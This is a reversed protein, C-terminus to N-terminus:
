RATFSYLRGQQRVVFRIRVMGDPMLKRLSRGGFLVKHRLSDGTILTTAITQNNVDLIAVSVPGIANLYLNQGQHLLPRTTITGADVSIFGDIRLRARFIGGGTIRTGRPHNKGYSSCGYYYILEDGIRLPGQSFESMYGGDNKGSNGGESGNPIFVEPIGADNVYPVKKWHLGDRSVVLKLFACGAASYPYDGDRHWVLLGGLWLSQYRWATSAYYEDFPKDGNLDAAPPMLEVHGIQDTDFPKDLSDLFVYSRSRLQNGPPVKNM